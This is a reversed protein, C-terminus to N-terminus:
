RVLERSGVGYKRRVLEEVQVFRKGRARLGDIVTPLADATISRIDHLLVTGSTGADVARFISDVVCSADLKKGACAADRGDITWGVHVGHRAVTESIPDGLAPPRTQFPAGFPARVLRVRLAEPAIERLVAEVGALEAEADTTKKTLDAHHVTHNGIDHGEDVIRRVTRRAPESARVDRENDTNIFFTAKVGKAALVDLIVDTLGHDDPGDDFTLAIEDPSAVAEDFGLFAIERPPPAADERPRTDPVGAEPVGAEPVGPAAETAGDPPERPTSAGNDTEALPESACASSLALM